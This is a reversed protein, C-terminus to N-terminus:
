FDLVTSNFLDPTASTWYMFGHMFVATEFHHVLETRATEFAKSLEIGGLLTRWPGRPFDKVFVSFAAGCARARILDEPPIGRARM